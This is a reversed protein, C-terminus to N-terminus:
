LLNIHNVFFQINLHIDTLKEINISKNNLIRYIQHHSLCVPLCVSLLFVNTYQFIMYKHKWFANVICYLAITYSCSVLRFSVYINTFLQWYINFYLKRKNICIKKNFIVDMITHMKKNRWHHSRDMNIHIKKRNM